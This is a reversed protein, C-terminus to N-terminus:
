RALVRRAASAIARPARASGPRVLKDGAALLAVIITCTLAQVVLFAVLGSPFLNNDGGVASIADFLAHMAIIPVLRRWRLLAYANAAGFIGGAMGSPGYYLHMLGRVVFAVAIIWGKKWRARELGLVLVAFVFEELIANSVCYGCAALVGGVGLATPIPTGQFAPDTNLEYQRYLMDYSEHHVLLLSALTLVIGALVLGTMCVAAARRAAPAHSGDPRQAFFDGVAPILLPCWLLVVAAQACQGFLSGGNLRAADLIVACCVGCGAVTLAILAPRPIRALRGGERRRRWLEELWYLGALATTAAVM